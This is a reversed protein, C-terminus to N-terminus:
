APAALHLPGSSALKRSIYIRNPSALLRERRRIEEPATARKFDNAAWSLSTMYDGSVTNQLELFRDADALDYLSAADNFGARACRASYDVHWLGRVFFNVEDAWGVRRVVEPTLTFLAGMCREVPVHGVLPHHEHHRAPPPFSEGRRDCLQKYHPLNLHCLHHLGSAIAANFYASMWGPRKFVVDDDIVFYFDVGLTLGLDVLSNFQGPAYRRLNRILHLPVPADLNALYDLTGDSSGDDAVAVITEFGPCLTRFLSALCQQLYPLRDFTKVGILIRTPRRDATAVDGSHPTAPATELRLYLADFAVRQGAPGACSFAIRDGTLVRELKLVVDRPQPSPELKLAPRLQGDAALLSLQMPHASPALCRLVLHVSGSAAARWATCVIPQEVGLLSEFAGGAHRAGPWLSWSHPDRPSFRRMGTPDFGVAQADIARLNFGLLAEAEPRQSCVRGYASEALMWDQDLLARNACVLIQEADPEATLELRNAPRSDSFSAPKVVRDYKHLSHNHPALPYLFCRSM